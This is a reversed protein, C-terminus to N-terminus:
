TKTYKVKLEQLGENLTTIFGIEQKNRISFVTNMNRNVLELQLKWPLNIPLNLNNINSDSSIDQCNGLRLGNKSFLPLLICVIIIQDPLRVFLKM